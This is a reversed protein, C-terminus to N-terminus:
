PKLLDLVRFVVLSSSILVLLPRVEQAAKIVVQPRYNVYIIDGSEVSSAAYKIGDITSLDILYSTRGGNEHRFLMISKAKAHVGVGGAMAIAEVVSVYQSGLQVVQGSGAPSTFIVVHRNLVRILVYPRNYIKEFEDEVFDQAELITMGSVKMNGVVPFEVMGNKDVTYEISRSPSTNESNVPGTSAELIIAGENTFIEFTILDNPQIRYEANATDFSLQSFVYDKPPKFMVESTLGCSSILASIAVLGILRSIIKM